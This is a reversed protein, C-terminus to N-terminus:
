RTRCAPEKRGGLLRILAPIPVAMAEDELRTLEHDLEDVREAPLVPGAQLRFKAAREDHELPRRPFGPADRVTGRTMGDATRVEVTAGWRGASRTGPQSARVRVRDSWSAIRRDAVAQDSFSSATVAGDHVRRALVYPISGQAAMPGGEMYRGGSSRFSYEDVIVDIAMIAEPDLYAEALLADLAAYASQVQIKAPIRKFALLGPLRFGPTGPSRARRAIRAEAPAMFAVLSGPGFDLQELRGRTGELAAAASVFGAQAARGAHIRKTDGSHQAAMLGGGLQVAIAAAHQMKGADLRLLRGATVAAAVSGTWGHVHLGGKGFSSGIAEGLRVGAEAGLAMAVLVSPWTAGTELALGIAVPTVASGAHLGGDLCQDDWDFAHILTGHILTATYLGSEMSTGWISHGTGRGAAGASVQRGWPTTSGHLACGLSDRLLRAAVATAEVPVDADRVDAAYQVFRRLSRSRM